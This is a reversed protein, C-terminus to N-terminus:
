KTVDIFLDGKLQLSTRAIVDACKFRDKDGVVLPNSSLEVVFSKRKKGKQRKTSGTELKGGEGREEELDQGIRPFNLARYPSETEWCRAEAIVGNENKARANFRGFKIRISWKTNGTVAYVLESTASSLSIEM